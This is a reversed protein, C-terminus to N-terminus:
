QLSLTTATILKGSWPECKLSFYSLSFRQFWLFTLKGTKIVMGRQLSHKSSVKFHTKAAWILSLWKHSFYCQSHPSVTEPHYWRQLLSLFHWSKSCVVATHSVLESFLWFSRHLTFMSAPQHRDTWWMTIKTFTCYCTKVSKLSQKDHFSKRPIAKRMIWIQTKKNSVPNASQASNNTEINQQM